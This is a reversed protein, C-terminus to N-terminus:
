FFWHGSLQSALGTEKTSIAELDNDTIKPEKYEKM